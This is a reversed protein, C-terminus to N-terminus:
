VKKAQELKNCKILNSKQIETRVITLCNLFSYPSNDSYECLEFSGSNELEEM